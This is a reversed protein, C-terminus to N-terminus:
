SSTSYRLRRQLFVSHIMWMYSFHHINWAVRYYQKQIPKRSFQLTGAVLFVETHKLSSSCYLHYRRGEVRTRGYLLHFEAVRVFSCHYLYFWATTQVRIKNQATINRFHNELKRKEEM